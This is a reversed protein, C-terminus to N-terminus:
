HAAQEPPAETGAPLRTSPLAQAVPPAAYYGPRMTTVLKRVPTELIDFFPRPHLGIWFCLLVLPVLSWFELGLPKVDALRRNEPNTLPGFLVRRAVWLMYAAGLVVGSAAFAVLVMWQWGDLALEVAGVLIPLEGVFGNLAPLGISSMTIIVFITSYLPMVSAIGGFDAIRKTHRREYLIGVLLFLAGTSLGHNIM